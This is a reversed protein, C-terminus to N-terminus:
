AGLWVHESYTLDAMFRLEYTRDRVNSEGITIICEANVEASYEKVYDWFPQWDPQCGMIVIDSRREAIENAYDKYAKNTM